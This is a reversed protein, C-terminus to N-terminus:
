LFFCKPAPTRSASDSCSRLFYIPANDVYTYRNLSQQTYVDAIESDPAMFRDFIPDYIRANLNVLCAADMMEQNTFGRIKTAVM